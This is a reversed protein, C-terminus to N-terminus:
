AAPLSEGDFNSRRNPYTHPQDQSSEADARLVEDLDHPVGATVLLYRRRQGATLDWLAKFKNKTEAM